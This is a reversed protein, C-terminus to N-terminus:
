NWPEQRGDEGLCKAAVECLSVGLLQSSTPYYWKESVVAAVSRWTLGDDVRLRRVEKARAVTMWGEAIADFKDSAVRVSELLEPTIPVGPIAPDMAEMDADHIGLPKNKYKEM